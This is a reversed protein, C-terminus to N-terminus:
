KVLSFMGAIFMCIHLMKDIVVYLYHTNVNYLVIMELLKRDEIRVIALQIHQLSMAMINQIFSGVGVNNICFLFEDREPRFTETTLKYGM